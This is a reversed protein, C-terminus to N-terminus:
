HILTAAPITITIQVHEERESGLQAGQRLCASACVVHAVLLGEWQEVGIQMGQGSGKTSSADTGWGGHLCACLSVVNGDEVGKGGICGWGGAWGGCGVEAGVWEGQGGGAGREYCQRVCWSCDGNCWARGLEVGSGGSGDDGGVAHSM